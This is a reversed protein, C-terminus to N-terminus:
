RTVFGAATVNQLTHAGRVPRWLSFQVEIPDDTLEVTGSIEVDSRINLDFGSISGVTQVLRQRYRAQFDCGARREWLGVSTIMTLDRVPSCRLFHLNHAEMQELGLPSRCWLRFSNAYDFPSPGPELTKPKYSHWQIAWTGKVTWGTEADIMDDQDRLVYLRQGPGQEDATRMRLISVYIDTKDPAPANEYADIVRENWWDKVMAKYEDQRVQLDINALSGAAVLAAVLDQMTEDAPEIM